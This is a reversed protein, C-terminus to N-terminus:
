LDLAPYYNEAGIKSVDSLWDGGYVDMPTQGQPLLNWAQRKYTWNDPHLRYAERFHRVAEEHRNARHLHQGLEFHAAATSEEIPRPRSRRVVEDATLAYRSAKGHAVWDRLAAIYQDADIRLKKNETMAAITRPSADAPIERDLFAPRRPYATEPPRVIMGDEDIWIGSPVNVVGFLEDLVHAQDILSPHEPNAKEIWQRAADAGGTDLAVTIIELGQPFLEQRLEQWV